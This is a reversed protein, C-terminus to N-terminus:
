REYWPTETTNEPKEDAWRENKIWREPDPIFGEMWSRWTKQEEIAKLVVQIDPRNGNLKKWEKFAGPKKVKKPYAQYFLEFDPTYTNRKRAKNNNIDEEKDKDKDEEEETAETKPIIGSSNRFSQEHERLKKLTSEYLLERFKPIFISINDGNFEVDWKGSNEYVKRSNTPLKGHTESSNTPLKGHTESSNTPLKGHTESSNTPLKGHTAIYELCKIIITGQRKCLKSKLYAQTTNLKWGVETHFERSYIELIGFFTLYGDGGYRRLLEFVFPDDLSDSIHKFWKMGVEIGVRVQM